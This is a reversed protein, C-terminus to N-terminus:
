YNAKDIHGCNGCTPTTDIMYASPKRITVKAVKYTLGMVKDPIKGTFDIHIKAVDHPNAKVSYIKKFLHSRKNGCSVNKSKHKNCNKATIKIEVDDIIYDSDNKIISHFSWIQKHKDLNEIEPELLKIIHNDSKVWNYNPSPALPEDNHDNIRPIYNASDAHRPLILITSPTIAIIGAVLCIILVCSASIITLVEKHDYKRFLFYMVGMVILCLITFLTALM